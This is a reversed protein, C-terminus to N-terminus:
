EGETRFPTLLRCQRDINACLYKLEQTEHDAWILWSIEAVGNEFRCVTMHRTVLLFGDKVWVNDRYEPVVDDLTYLGWVRGDRSVIPYARKAEEDVIILEKDLSDISRYMVMGCGLDFILYYDERNQCSMLTKYNKKMVDDVTM